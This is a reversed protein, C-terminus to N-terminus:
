KASQNAVPVESKVRKEVRAKLHQLRTLLAEYHSIERPFFNPHNIEKGKVRLHSQISEEYGDYNELFLKLVTGRFAMPYSSRDDLCSEVAGCVAVRIVEHRVYVKYNDAAKRDTEQDFVEYYHPQDHYPDNTLLSQISLLLSWLHSLQAGSRDGPIHWSHQASKIPYDLPCTSTSSCSVEKTPRARLDWWSPSSVRSTTRRPHSTSERSAPRERRHAIDKKVESSSRRLPMM